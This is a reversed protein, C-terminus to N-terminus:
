LIHKVVTVKNISLATCLGFVSLIAEQTLNRSAEPTFCVIALAAIGAEAAYLRKM